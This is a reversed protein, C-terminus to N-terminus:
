FGYYFARFGFPTYKTRQNNNNNNNNNNTANSISNTFYFSFLFILLRLCYSISPPGTLGVRPTPLIIPFLSIITVPRCPRIM